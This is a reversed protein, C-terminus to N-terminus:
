QQLVGNIYNNVIVVSTKSRRSLAFLVMGALGVTLVAEMLESINETDFLKPPDKELEAKAGQVLRKGIKAVM